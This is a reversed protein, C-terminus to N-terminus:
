PVECAGMTWNSAGTPRLTGNLDRTFVGADRLMPYNTFSSLYQFLNTGTGRLVSNTKPVMDAPSVVTVNTAMYVNSYSFALTFKPDGGNISHQDNTLGPTGFPSGFGLVASPYARKAANKYGSEFCWDQFYNGVAVGSVSGAQGNTAWSAILGNGDFPSTENTGPDNGCCYAIGGIVKGESGDGHSADNVTTYSMPSANQASWFFTDYYSYVRRTSTGFAGQARVYVNGLFYNDHSNTDGTNGITGYNGIQTFSLVNTSGIYNFDNYHFNRTIWNNTALEGNQTYTQYFDTHNVKQTGRTFNSYTNMDYLSNVTNPRLADWGNTDFFFNNTFIIGWGGEAVFPHGCTDTFRLGRIVINSIEKTFGLGANLRICYGAASESQDVSNEVHSTFNELIIDHAGIDLIIASTRAAINSGSITLLGRGNVRMNTTSTYFGAWRCVAEAQITLSPIKNTVYNLYDGGKVHVVSGSTAYSVVNTMTAWPAAYTGPNADSGNTQDVWLGSTDINTIGRSVAVSIKKQFRWGTNGSVNTSNKATFRSGGAATSDKISTYNVINEMNSSSITFASGGSTSQFVVNSGRLGSAVLLGNSYVLGAGFSVTKGPPITLVNFSQAVNFSQTGLGFTCTLNNYKLGSGGNFTQNTGCMFITSTQPNLTLSSQAGNFNWVFASSNTIFWSSGVGMNLIKPTTGSTSFSGGSTGYVNKGNADFTGSTLTFGSGAFVVDDLLNVSGTYCDIIAGNVMIRGASTWTNSGRGEFTPRFAGNVTLNTIFTLSGYLSANVGINFAPSNTLGTFDVNKGIRPMDNTVAKSALGSWSKVDFFVFDQPLPVRGSGALGGSNTAWRTQDSYFGNGANTGWYNSIGPTFTINANGGCDGSKGAIASLDTSASLVIDRFDANAYTGGNITNTVQTGLTGSRILVRNTTSNGSITKGNHDISCGVNETLTMVKSTMFNLNDGLTTTGNTIVMLPMNEGGSTLTSNAGIQLTATPLPTYTMVGLTGFTCNGAVTWVFGSQMLTSAYSTATFTKCNAAAGITVAGSGADLTIDDNITPPGSNDVGASSTSSWTSASSYPGGATKAWLAAEATIEFQLCVMLVCLLKKWM